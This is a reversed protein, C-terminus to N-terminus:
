LHYNYFNITKTEAIAEAILTKSGIRSNIFEPEVNAEICLEIFCQFAISKISYYRTHIGDKYVQKICYCKM